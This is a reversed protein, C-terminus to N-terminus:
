GRARGRRDTPGPAECLPPSGVPVSAAAEEVAGTPELEPPEDLLGPLEDDTELAESELAGPVDEADDGPVDESFEWDNESAEAERAPASPTEGPAEPAAQQVPPLSPSSVEPLDETPPPARFPEAATQSILEDLLDPEDGGPAPLFFAHKCKSCRVRAGGQPIRSEDLKFRTQCQECIVIV